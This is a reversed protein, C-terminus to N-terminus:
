WQLDEVTEVRLSNGSSTLSEKLLKVEGEDWKSYAAVLRTFEDRFNKVSTM